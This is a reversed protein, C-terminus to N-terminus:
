REVKIPCFIIFRQYENVKKRKMNVIKPLSCLCSVKRELDAKLCAIAEESMHQTSTVEMFKKKYQQLQETFMLKEQEM